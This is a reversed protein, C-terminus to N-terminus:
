RSAGGRTSHVLGTLGSVQLALPTLASTSRDKFQITVTYDQSRGQNDIFVCTPDSAVRAHRIEVTQIQSIRGYDFRLILADQFNREQPGAEIFQEALVNEIIVVGGSRQALLRAKADFIRWRDALANLNSQEAASSVSWTAIATIFGLIVIIALLEILTFAGPRQFPGALRISYTNPLQNM